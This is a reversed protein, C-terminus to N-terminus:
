NKAREGGPVFFTNAPDATANAWGQDSLTAKNIGRTTLYRLNDVHHDYALHIRGDGSIGMGIVNHSDWKGNQNTGGDGDEDGNSMDYGTDIAHWTNTSDSLRRRAIYIDQEDNPGNHYWTAFQFGGFTVIPETQHSRGNISRGFRSGTPMMLANSDLLMDASLSLSQARSFSVSLMCVTVVILAILRPSAYNFSPDCDALHIPLKMM